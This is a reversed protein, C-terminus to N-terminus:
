KLAKTGTRLSHVLEEKGHALAYDLIRWGSKDQRMADAGHALLARVVEINGERVAVMLPLDGNKRGNVQSGNKILLEVMEKGGHRAAIVLPDQALRAPRVGRGILAKVIEPRNARVAWTMWQARDMGDAKLAAGHSILYAVMDHQEANMAAHLPSKGGRGRLSLVKSRALMLRMAAINGQAAAFHVVSDGDRDTARLSLGQRLLWALVQTGKHNVAAFLLTRRGHYRAHIPAGQAVLMKLAKLNDEHAAYEVATYDEEDRGLDYFRTQLLVKLAHLRNQRVAYIVARRKRFRIDSLKSSRAVQRRVAQADNKDIADLLPPLENESDSEVVDGEVGSGKTNSKRHMRTRQAPSAIKGPSPVDYAKAMYRMAQKMASQNASASAAEPDYRWVLVKASHHEYFGEISQKKCDGGTRRKQGEEGVRDCLKATTPMLRTRIGILSIKDGGRRAAEDRLSAQIPMDNGIQKCRGNQYCLRVHREMSLYGILLYGKGTLSEVRGEFFQAARRRADFAQRHFAKFFVTEDHKAQGSACAGLMASILVLAIAAYVVSYLRRADRSHENNAM